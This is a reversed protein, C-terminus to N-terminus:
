YLLRVVLRRDIKYREVLKRLEDILKRELIKPLFTLM